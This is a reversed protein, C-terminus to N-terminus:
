STGAYGCCLRSRRTRGRLALLRNSDIRHRPLLRHRPSWRIRTPHRATSERRAQGLIDRVQRKRHCPRQDPRRCARSHHHQRSAGQDRRHLARGHVLQQHTSGQRLRSGQAVSTPSDLHTAQTHLSPQRRHHQPLRPLLDHLPRERARIGEQGHGQIGAPRHHAGALRSSPHRHCRRCIPRYTKTSSARFPTTQDKFAQNSRSRWAM